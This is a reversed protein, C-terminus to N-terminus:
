SVPKKDESVAADATNNEKKAGETKVAEEAVAVEEEHLVVISRVNIGADALATKVDKMKADTTKVLMNVLKM